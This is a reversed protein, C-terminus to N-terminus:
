VQQTGQDQCVIDFITKTCIRNHHHPLSEYHYGVVFFCGFNRILREAVLHQSGIGVRRSGGVFDRMRVHFRALEAFPVSARQDPLGQLLSTQRIEKQDHPLNQFGVVGAAGVDLEVM